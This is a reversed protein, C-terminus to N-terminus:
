IPAMPSSWGCRCRRRVTISAIKGPCGRLQRHARGAAIATPTPFTTSYDPNINNCDDLYSPLTIKQTYASYRLQFSLDERLPLGWKLTGGLSETGYSLYSNAITEKAFLDIGM